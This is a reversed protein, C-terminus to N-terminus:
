PVGAALETIRIYGRNARTATVDVFGLADLVIRGPVYERRFTYQCIPCRFHDVPLPRLLRDKMWHEAAATHGCKGVIAAGHSV